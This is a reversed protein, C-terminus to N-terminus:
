GIVPRRYVLVPRSPAAIAEAKVEAKPEAAAEVSKTYGSCPEKGVRVTSPKTWGLTRMVDELRKTVANTRREATIGLVHIGLLYDSAVRWELGGSEDADISFAGPKDKFEKDGFLKTLARQILDEWADQTVRAQQEIGAAGWLASPITLEEGSAELAVVEAWLQDRDRRVAEIDILGPRLKVPWYRRNGTTDRLYNDDNTTGIFVCRRPRDVRTHGYAPRARDHTKSLFLKIKTVDHKSMGELEGIEYLWVGAVAEQQEQKDGGIIEADSFNEEGALVRILTSKGQGQPGELVLLFDFKCGPQRVRRVAALLTKRGFARNLPTDAAGCYEVLWRDVRPVGDWRLGDLYERVPDFTNELCEITLADITYQKGPDFGYKLLVRQRLLVAVQDFGEFNESIVTADHNKVIVRDHFVDYRCDIQLLKVAILANEFSTAIGNPSRSHQFHELGGRARLFKTIAQDPGVLPRGEVEGEPKLEERAM